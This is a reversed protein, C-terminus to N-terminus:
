DGDSKPTPDSKPQASDAPKLHKDFWDLEM